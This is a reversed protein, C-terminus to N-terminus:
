DWKAQKLFFENGTILYGRIFTFGVWLLNDNYNNWTWDSLSNEQVIKSFDENQRSDEWKGTYSELAVFAELLESYISKLETDGRFDHRDALM